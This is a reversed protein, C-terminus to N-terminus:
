GYKSSPRYQYQKIPGAPVWPRSALESQRKGRLIQVARDLSKFYSELKKREVAQTKAVGTFGKLRSSVASDQRGSNIRPLSLANKKKRKKNANTFKRASNFQIIGGKRINAESLNRMMPKKASQFHHGSQDNFNINTDINPLMSGKNKRKKKKGKKKGFKSALAQGEPIAHRHEIMSSELSENEETIEEIFINNEFTGKKITGDALQMIGQGHQIGKVWAGKYFSEDVWYMEGYGHREDDKYEGRYFNGSAWKFEGYGEKKGKVYNGEFVCKEEGQGKSWKGKGHKLGNKFQGKYASGNKWTYVGIGWPKGYKYQGTYSDGNAFYDTGKGHKM